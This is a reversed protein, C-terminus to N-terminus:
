CNALPKGMKQAVPFCSIYVQGNDMNSQNLAHEEECHSEMATMKKGKRIEVDDFDLRAVLM